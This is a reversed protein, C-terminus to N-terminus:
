QGVHVKKILGTFIEAIFLNGTHEDFALSTPSILGSAVVVPAASASSFFRIQGPQNTLMDTSFELTYFQSQGNSGNVVAVDIASTLGGIFTTQSNNALNIKRVESQGPAFPFGTLFTVLLQKGFIRANNPVADMFPPGFPLPNPKPAFTALVRSDGTAIDVQRVINLGADAVYLTDKLIALGFPNSSRVNASFGPRPEDAFDRFNALVSVVVKQGAPNKAKLNIGESLGDYDDSTLAFNGSTTELSSDFRIALVSSFLPSSRDPNPLVTGQAPGPMASDGEGISVYLTRGRLALGSPGSPAAEGGGLSIGSPLGDVLTRRNGDQDIISIRGDNNGTGTEAVVLSGDPTVILRTPAKLGGTVVTASQALASANSFLLAFLALTALRTIFKKVIFKKM